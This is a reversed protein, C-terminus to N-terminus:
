ICFNKRSRWVATFGGRFTAGGSLQLEIEGRLGSDAAISRIRIWGTRAPECRGGECRAGSAEEPQRPWRYTRPGLRTADRPYIAVRLQPQDGGEILSDAPDLPDGRLVISVAYGDWPACSPAAYAHAFGQPPSPLPSLDSSASCGANWTMVLILARGSDIM